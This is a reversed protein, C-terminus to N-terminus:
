TKAIKSGGWAIRPNLQILVFVINEFKTSIQLNKQSYIKLVSSRVSSFVPLQYSVLKQARELQYKNKLLFFGKQIYIYKM